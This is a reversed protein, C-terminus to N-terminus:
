WTAGRQVNWVFVRLRPHFARKLCGNVATLKEDEALPSRADKLHLNRKGIEQMLKLLDNLWTSRVSRSHDPLQKSQGRTSTRKLRHQFVSLCFLGGTRLTLSRKPSSKRQVHFYPGWM